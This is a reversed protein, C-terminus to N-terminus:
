FQHTCVKYHELNNMNNDIIQTFGILDDPTM